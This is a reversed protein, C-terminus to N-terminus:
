STNFHHKISYQHTKNRITFLTTSPPPTWNMDHRIRRPTDRVLANNTQQIYLFLLLLKERACVRARSPSCSGSRGGTMRTVSRGVLQPARPSAPHGRGDVRARRAESLRAQAPNSRHRVRRLNSHLGSLHVGIPPCSGMPTCREDWLRVGKM